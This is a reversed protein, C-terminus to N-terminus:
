QNPSSKRTDHANRREGSDGAPILRSAGCSRRPNLAPTPYSPRSPRASMVIVLAGFCTDRWAACSGKERKETAHLSMGSETERCKGCRGRHRKGSHAMSSSRREVEARRTRLGVCLPIRTFSPSGSTPFRTIELPSSLNAVGPDNGKLLRRGTEIKRKGADAPEEASVPPRRLPM